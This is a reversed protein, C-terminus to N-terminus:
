RVDLKELITGRSDVAEKGERALKKMDMGYRV